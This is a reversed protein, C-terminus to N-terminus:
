RSVCSTEIPLLLMASGKFIEQFHLSFSRRYFFQISKMYQCSLIGCSEHSPTSSPISIMITGLCIGLLCSKCFDITAWAEVPAEEKRDNAGHQNQEM